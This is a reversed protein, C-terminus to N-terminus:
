KFINPFLASLAYGTSLIILAIVISINVVNQWTNNKYEGMLEKNNLLLILFVLAAPLLTTAIVQVFL